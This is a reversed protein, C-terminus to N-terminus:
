TRTTIFSMPNCQMDDCGCCYFSHESLCQQSIHGYCSVCRGEHMASIVSPVENDPVVTLM